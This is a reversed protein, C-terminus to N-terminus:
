QGAQRRWRVVADECQTLDLVQCPLETKQVFLACNGGVWLQRAAPLRAQLEQLSDMAQRPTMASSFSLAIVDVRQKEAALLIEAIPTQVGLSLCHAGALTMLAEVMLLGLAHREQPVTTLLIRPAALEAPPATALMASRMVMQLSETYLHEEFVAFEGSAWADGVMATLPAAVDLVFRRLGDQLIAQSLGNRLDHIRHSKILSMCTHLLPSCAGKPMAQAANAMRQLEPMGAQMIKGPRAGLDILRKIVRLKEVQVLPYRREGLGDRLPLPFGYRREWVRLTEKAVGIEREVDSISCTQALAGDHAVGSMAVEM